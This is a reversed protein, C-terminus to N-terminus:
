EFVRNLKNENGKTTILKYYYTQEHKKNHVKMPIRCTNWIINNTLTLFNWKPESECYNEYIHKGNVDTLNQRRRCMAHSWSCRPKKQIPQMLISMFVFLPWRCNRKSKHRSTQMGCIPLVFMFNNVRQQLYSYCWHCADLSQRMETSHRYKIEHSLKQM